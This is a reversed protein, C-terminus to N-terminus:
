SRRGGIQLRQEPADQIAREVDDRTAGAQKWARMDKLGDPPRIVQVMPAYLVLRSALADAGREGPRDADAAIVVWGPRHAQALETIARTGGSCSPRGVAEFGLDLLAGCDTAGEAVLLQGGPALTLDRPMFLGDHGGAVAFKHGSPTRLRIGRVLGRADVMPFSWAAHNEAWGVRLRRLSGASLGLSEAFAQLRGDDLATEYRHALAEFDPVRLPRRSLPLRIAQRPVRQQPAAGLRHLWGADGCRKVAGDFTRPCIVATGDVSVLCWDGHECIPCPMRRTVRRWGVSNVPGTM